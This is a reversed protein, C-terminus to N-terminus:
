KCKSKQFIMALSERKVWLRYLFPQLYYSILVTSAMGIITPVAVSALAPHSAFLLSGITVMLVLASFFIATKHHLLMNANKRKDAILGNMVFISYDVGIGFIFTSIVINILNFQLGFIVMVGLVIYWSLVMPLFAIITLKIRRFSVLLVLLVFAMSIQLAIHFDDKIIQIMNSTYYMPDIALIHPNKALSDCVDKWLEKSLQVPTFIMYIDNNKEIINSMLNDPILHSEYLSVPEFDQRLADAFPTFSATTFGYKEGIRDVKEMITVIQKECFENKWLRIREAQVGQPIFLNASHSYNAIKKEAYLNELQQNMRCSYALASDLSHSTAAFYTTINGGATKANLLDQSALIKPEFYGINKLNSDFDVWFSMIFCCISVAIIAIILWPKRDLPYSNIKEIQKFIKKSRRNNIGKFFQPMFILCYLTTGIMAFSAFLGFDILLDSDTFLLGLFAGITTLCGLFVPVAEDRLVKIASNVYKYHTLVHLCYSLAVGLVISGLGVAMLSMSSKIFYMCALAFFAGYLLPLFLHLLTSKNRFCIGIFIFIVIVSIAITKWLDKKIQRANFVGQIPPGHYHVSLNQHQSQFAMIEDEILEVLKVNGKSDMAFFKPTIFAIALTSDPTFFHFNFIKYNGGLGESMKKFSSLLVNRMGVPDQRIIDVFEAAAPSNLLTYNSAMMSDIHEETFLKKIESLTGSDIFVPLHAILFQLANQLTEEDIRYLVDNILGTTDHVFLSDIFNDCVEVLEDPNKQGDKLSFLVFIKDKVHLNSFVLQESNGFKSDPLLKSIDEEFKMQVGFYIFFTSSSLLLLYM